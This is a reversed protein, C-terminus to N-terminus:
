RNSSTVLLYTTSQFGVVSRSSPEGNGISSYGTAFTRVVPSGCGGTVIPTRRGSPKSEHATKRASGTFSASPVRAPATTVKRSMVSRLRESSCRAALSSFHRTSACLRGSKTIMISRSAFIRVM